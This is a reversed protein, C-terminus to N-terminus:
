EVSKEEIMENESWLLKKRNDSQNLYIKDFDAYGKDITFKCMSGEMKAFPNLFSMIYVNIHLTDEQIEYSYDWKGLHFGVYFEISTENEEVKAGIGGKNFSYLERGFIYYLLFLLILLIMWQVIKLMVKFIIQFIKKIKTNM